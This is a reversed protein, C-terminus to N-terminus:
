DQSNKNNEAMNFLVWKIEAESIKNKDKNKNKEKEFPNDINEKQYELLLKTFDSFASEHDFSIKKLTQLIKWNKYSYKWFFITFILSIIGVLLSIISIILSAIEM